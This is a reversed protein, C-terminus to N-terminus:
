PIGRILEAWAFLASRVVGPYRWAVCALVIGGPLALAAAGAAM